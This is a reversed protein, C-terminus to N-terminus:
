VTPRKAEVDKVQLGLHRARSLAAVGHPEDSGRIALAAPDGGYGLRAAAEIAMITRKDPAFRGISAAARKFYLPCGTAIAIRPPMSGCPTSASLRARWRPKCTLSTSAFRGVTSSHTCNSRSAPGASM